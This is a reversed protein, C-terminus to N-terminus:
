PVPVYVLQTTGDSLTLLVTSMNAPTVSSGSPTGFARIFFLDGTADSVTFTSQSIINTLELAQSLVVSSGTVNLVGNKINVTNSADIYLDGDSTINIDGGTSTISQSVASTQILGDSNIDINNSNTTGIAIDGNNGVITYIGIPNIGTQLYETEQISIMQFYTALDTFHKEGSINSYGAKKVFLSSDFSSSSSTPNEVLIMRVLGSDKGYYPVINEISTFKGNTQNAVRRFVTSDFSTAQLSLQEYNFVYQGGALGRVTNKSQISSYKGNNWFLEYNVTDIQCYASSFLFLFLVLFMNRSKNFEYRKLSDVMKIDKDEFTIVTQNRSTIKNILDSLAVFFKLFNKIIKKM